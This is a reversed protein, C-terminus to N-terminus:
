PYETSPNFYNVKVFLGKKKKEGRIRNRKGWIYLILDKQDLWIKCTKCGWM